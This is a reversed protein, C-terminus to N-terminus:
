DRRRLLRVQLDQSEYVPVYERQLKALLPELDPRAFRFWRYNWAVFEGRYRLAAELCEKHVASALVQPFPRHLPFPYFYRLYSKAGFHYASFGADLYFIESQQDLRFQRMMTDYEQRERRAFERQDFVNGIHDDFRTGILFFM